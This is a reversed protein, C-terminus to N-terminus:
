SRSTAGIKCVSVRNLYGSTVLVRTTAFGASILIHFGRADEGITCDRFSVASNYSLSVRENGCGQRGLGDRQQQMESRERRSAGGGRGAGERSANAPAFRDYVRRTCVCVCVSPASIRRTSSQCM